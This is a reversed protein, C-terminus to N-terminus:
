NSVSEVLRRAEKIEERIDKNMKSADMFDENDEGLKNYEERFKNLVNAATVSNKLYEFAESVLYAQLDADKKQESEIKEFIHQDQLLTKSSKLLGYQRIEDNSVFRYGLSPRYEALLLNTDAVELLVDGPLFDFEQLPNEGKLFSLSLMLHEKCKELKPMFTDRLFTTFLPVKVIYKNLSFNKSPLHDLIKKVVKSKEGRIHSEVIETQRLIFRYLADFKIIRAFLFENLGKQGAHIFYNKRLLFVNENILTSMEAITKELEDKHATINPDNQELKNVLLLTHIIRQNCKTYLEIEPTYVCVYESSSNAPQDMQEDPQVFTVKQDRIPLIQSVPFLTGLDSSVASSDKAGGATGKKDDKKKGKPDGAKGKGGKEIRERGLKQEIDYKNEVLESCVKEDGFVKNINSFDFELVLNRLYSLLLNRGKRFYDLAKQFEKECFFYEGVDSFFIGLHPDVDKNKESITVIQAILDRAEEKKGMMVLLRTRLEFARRKFYSDNLKACDELFSSNPDSHVLSNFCMWRRMYCLSRAMELKVILWLHSQVGKVTNTEAANRELTDGVENLFAVLEEEGMEEDVAGKDKAGKKKDAAKPKKDDKKGPAPKKDDKKKKDNGAEEVVEPIETFELKSLSSELTLNHLLSLCDRTYAYHASFMNLSLNIRALLLYNQVLMTCREKRIEEFAGGGFDPAFSSPVVLQDKFSSYEPNQSFLTAAAAIHDKSILAELHKQAQEQIAQMNLVDKDQVVAGKGAAPKPPEKGTAVPPSPNALGIESHPGIPTVAPGTAAKEGAHMISALKEVFLIRKISEVMEAGLAELKGRRLEIYSTNDLNELRLISFLLTNKAFYFLEGNLLGLKGWQADLLKLDQIKTIIGTNRADNPTVDNQYYMENVFSYNCGSKLKQTESSKFLSMIPFDKEQHVRMLNIISENILGAQSLAISKVLKARASQYHSNCQHNALYECICVLPILEFIFEFDLAYGYLQSCYHLLDNPDLFKRELFCQEEGLSGMSYVALDKYSQPHELSIKLIDSAIRCAMLTSERRMHVDKHYSYVALKGLVVLVIMLERFGFKQINEAGSDGLTDRFGKVSSAKQFVEDVCESWYITAQRIDNIAFYLNGLDHLAVAALLIEKKKRMSNDILNKYSKIYSHVEILLGKKNVESENLIRLRLGEYMRRETVAYQALSRQLTRLERLSEKVENDIERKITVAQERDRKYLDEKFKCMEIQSEIIEVDKEFDVQEQPKENKLKMQRSKDKKTKVWHDYAQRRVKLQEEKAVRKETAAGVLKDQASITFPLTYKSYFHSTVNSLTKTINIIVNWKEKIMLVQVVFGVLNAIIQIKLPKVNAFWFRKKEELPDLPTLGKAGNIEVRFFTPNFPKYETDVPEFVNTDDDEFFGKINKVDEVMKLCCDVLLVLHKWSERSAVESPRIAEETLLNVCYIAVNQLQRYSRSVFAELAAQGLYELCSDLKELQVEPFDVVEDYKMLSNLDRATGVSSRASGAGSRHDGGSDSKADNNTASNNQPGGGPIHKKSSISMLSESKELEFIDTPSIIPTVRRPGRGQRFWLYLSSANLFALESQWLRSQRFSRWQDKMITVLKDQIQFYEKFIQIGTLNGTQSIEEEEILGNLGSPNWDVDGDYARFKLKVFEEVFNNSDDQKRSNKYDKIQDRIERTSPSDYNIEILRRGLKALYEVFRDTKGSTEEIKKKMGNIDFFFAYFDVIRTLEQRCQTVKDEHTLKDSLSGLHDNWYDQFYDVFNYFDEHINLLFEEFFPQYSTREVVDRKFQPVLKKEEEEGELGKGPKGAAPKAAGVGPKKAKSPDVYEVMEISSKLNYKRRPVKIETYLIRKSFFFENIQLSLRILQYVVKGSVKRLLDDWYHGPIMAAAMNCKSLIQFILRSLSKMQFFESLNNYIELFAMRTVEFAQCPISCEIALLLLNSIELVERQKDKRINLNQNDGKGKDPDYLCCYSWVLLTEAVARMELGSIKRLKAPNVRYVYVPHFQNKLLREKILTKELVCDCGLKAAKLSTEYDELQFAIKALYAYLLNIPLPQATYIEQTTKGIENCLSQQDMNKEADYAGVAFVYRRNTELNPIRVISGMNYHVGTNSLDISTTSVSTNDAKKGYLAMSSIIGKKPNRILIEEPIKPRFHPLKFVMSCSTKSLLVPTRPMKSKEIYDQKIMASFPHIKDANVRELRDEYLTSLIEPANQIGEEILSNEIRECKELCQLTEALIHQQESDVGRNMAFVMQLLANLYPNQGVDRLLRKEYAALEPRQHEILGAKQLNSNLVQAKRQIEQSNPQKMLNIKKYISRAIGQLGQQERIIDWEDKVGVMQTEKKAALKLERQAGDKVENRLMSFAVDAHLTCVLLDFDNLQKQEIKAFLDEDKFDDNHFQKTFRLVEDEEEDEEQPKLPPKGAKQRKTRRITRELDLKWRFYRSKMGKFVNEIKENNCTLSFPLLLELDGKLRRSLKQDRYETIKDYVGRLVQAAEAFRTQLELMKGLELGVRAVWLIDQEFENARSVKLFLSLLSTVAPFLVPLLHQTFAPLCSELLEGQAKMYYFHDMQLLLPCVFVKWVSFVLKYLLDYDALLLQDGLSGQLAKTMTQSLQLFEESGFNADLYIKAEDKDSQIKTKHTTQELRNLSELLYVLRETRFFQGDQKTSLFVYDINNLKVFEKPVQRLDVDLKDFGYDPRILPSRSIIPRIDTVLTKKERDDTLGTESQQFCLYPVTHYTAKIGTYQQIPIAVSKWGNKMYDKPGRHEDAIEVRINYVAREPDASRKIILYTFQHEVKELEKKKFKFGTATVIYGPGEPEETAKKAAGKAGPKTAAKGSQTNTDEDDDALSGAEQQRLNRIRAIEQKLYAENLDVPLKEYGNPVNVDMDNSVLFSIDSIYPVEIRRYDCRKLASQLLEGFLQQKNIDFAHKLLEYHLELPFYESVRRAREEESLLALKAATANTLLEQQPNAPTAPPADKGPKGGTPKAPPEPAAPTPNQAATQGVQRLSVVLAGGSTEKLNQFKKELYGVLFALDGKVTEYTLDIVAEKWAEKKGDHQFINYSKNNNTLIEILTLFKYQNDEDKPFYDKLKGKLVDIKMEGLQLQFKLSLSNLYHQCRMYIKKSYEPVPPDLEELDKQKRITDAARNALEM